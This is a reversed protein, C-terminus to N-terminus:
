TSGPVPVPLPYMVISGGPLLFISAFIVGCVGGSAGLAQYEHHRHIILSLLSGGLIASVYVAALTKAGYLWEVHQAFSYFSVANFAFHIWDAHILGATLMRGYEKHRLIAHPNFLLREKLEPRRQAVFTVLGTLVLVVITVPEATM